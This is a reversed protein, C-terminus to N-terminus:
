IEKNYVTVTIPGNNEVIFRGYGEKKPKRCFFKSYLCVGYIYHTHTLFFERLGGSSYSLGQRDDDPGPGAGVIAASETSYM